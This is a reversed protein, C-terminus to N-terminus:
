VNKLYLTDVVQGTGHRVGTAQDVWGDIIEARWGGKRRRRLHLEHRAWRRAEDLALAYVGWWEAFGDERIFVTELLPPLRTESTPLIEPQTVDDM